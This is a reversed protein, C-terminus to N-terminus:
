LCMGAKQTKLHWLSTKYRCQLRNRKTGRKKEHNVWLQILALSTLHDWQKVWLEEESDTKVYFFLSYVDGKLLPRPLTVKSFTDVGLCKWFWSTPLVCPWVGDSYKNRNYYLGFRPRVYVHLQVQLRGSLDTEASEPRSQCCAYMKNNKSANPWKKGCGCIRRKAM